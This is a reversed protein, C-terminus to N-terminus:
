LCLQFPRWFWSPRPELVLLADQFDIRELTTLGRLPEPVALQRRVASSSHIM